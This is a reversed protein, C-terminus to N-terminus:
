NKKAPVKKNKIPTKSSKKPATKKAKVVKVPTKKIPTKKTKMQTKKLTKTSKIPTKKSTLSKKKGKVQTKKIPTKKSILPTKKSKLPTKKSKLPTKKSKVQITKKSPTKKNKEEVRSIKRNSNIKTGSKRVINIKSKNALKKEVEIQHEGIRFCGSGKGTKRAMKLDGTELGRRLALKMNLVVRVEDEVLSHKTKMHALIAQRSSGTRSALHKISGVIMEIYRPNSSSNKKPQAVKPSPASSKAKGASKTPTKTAPSRMRSAPLM